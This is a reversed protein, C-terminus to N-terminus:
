VEQATLTWAQRGNQVVEVFASFEPYYGVIFHSAGGPDTVTATNTVVNTVASQAVGNVVAFGRVAVDGRRNAPLVIVNSADAITRAESCSLTLSNDLDLGEWGSLMWGSGSITTRIKTFNKQAKATGNIMRAVFKPTQEYTQSLGAAAAATLEIGGLKPLVLTM